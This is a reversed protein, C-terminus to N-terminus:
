KQRRWKGKVFLIVDTLMSDKVYKPGDWVRVYFLTNWFDYDDSSTAGDYRCLRFCTSENEGQIHRAAILDRRRDMRAVLRVSTWSSATVHTRTYELSDKSVSIDKWKIDDSTLQKDSQVEQYILLEEWNSQRIVVTLSSSKKSIM